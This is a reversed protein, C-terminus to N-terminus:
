ANREPSMRVTGQAELRRLLGDAATEGAVVLRGRAPLVSRGTPLQLEIPAATLNQVVVAESGTAPGCVLRAPTTRYPDSVTTGFGLPEAAPGSVALRSGVGQSPSTIRVREDGTVRAVKRRVSRNIRAAVDAASWRDREEDDFTVKRSKGDVEVTLTTAPKLAYPGPLDSTLMASGPGTGRAAGGGLGLAATATSAPDVELVSTEGADESALVLRGDDDVSATVGDVGGLKEALEAGTLEGDDAALAVTQWPGDGARLTLAAGQVLRYSTM